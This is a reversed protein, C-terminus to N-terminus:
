TVQDRLTAMGTRSSWPSITPIQPGVLIDGLRFQGLFRQLMSRAIKLDGISLEFLGGFGRELGEEPV